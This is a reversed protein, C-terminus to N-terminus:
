PVFTSRSKSVMLLMLAFAAIVYGYTQRIDVAFLSAVVLLGLILRGGRTFRQEVFISVKSVVPFLRYLMKPPM